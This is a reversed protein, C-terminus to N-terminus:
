LLQKLEEKASIISDKYRELDRKMDSQFVNIKENQPANKVKERYIKEFEELIMNEIVTKDYSINLLLAEASYKIQKVAELEWRNIFNDYTNIVITAEKYLNYGPIVICNFLEKCDEERLAIDQIASIQTRFCSLFKLLAIKKVKTLDEYKQQRFGIALFIAFCGSVLSVIGVQTIIEKVRNM